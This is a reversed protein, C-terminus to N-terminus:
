DHLMAAPKFLGGGEFIAKGLFGFSQSLFRLLQRV